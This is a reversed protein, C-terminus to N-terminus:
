NPMKNFYNQIDAVVTKTVNEILTPKMKEILTEFGRQINVPEIADIRRIWSDKPSKTSIIRFTVFESDNTDNGMRVMGKNTIKTTLNKGKWVRSKEIAIANKEDIRDGWKYESREIMEGRSNPEPHTNGTKWSLKMNSTQTRYVTSPISTGFHATEGNSGWRFCIILYSSGDKSVRSKKGFPYKTKMDFETASQGNQIKDIVPHNATITALLPNNYGVKVSQALSTRLKDYKSPIADTNPLSSEGVFYKRLVEAADEVFGSFENITNPMYQNPNSVLTNLITNIDKGFSNLDIIEM